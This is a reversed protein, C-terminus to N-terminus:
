PREELLGARTALDVVADVVQDLTLHTTDIHVADGSPQLANTQSDRADRAEIARKTDDAPRGTEGARRAM